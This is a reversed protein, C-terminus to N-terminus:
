DRMLGKALRAAMGGMVRGLVKFGLLRKEKGKVGEEEKKGEKKTIILFATARWM